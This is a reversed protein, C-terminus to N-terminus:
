SRYNELEKILFHCWKQYNLKEKWFEAAKKGMSLPEALNNRLEEIKKLFDSITKSYFSVESWNIFKKFPRTDIEGILFPVVGLQMAEYFRFSSGGIGRPCLAIYSGLMKKVFFRSSRVGNYIYIDKKDRLLNAMKQRLPHTKLSGVFSALYNKRPKILTKRHPSCILPVDFHKKTKRSGLFLIM